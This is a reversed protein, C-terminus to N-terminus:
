LQVYIIPPEPAYALERLFNKIKKHLKTAANQYINEDSQTKFFERFILM